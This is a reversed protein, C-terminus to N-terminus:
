KHSPKNKLANRLVNSTSFSTFCFVFFLIFCFLFLVFCFLVFFCCCNGIIAIFTSVDDKGFVSQISCTYKAGDGVEAGDIVLSNNDTFFLQDGEMIQAGDKFWTVSPTPVGSVPCRITIATNSAATVNDGINMTVPSGDGVPIERGSEPVEISPKVPETHYFSM